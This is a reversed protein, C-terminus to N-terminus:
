KGNFDWMAEVIIFNDTSLIFSNNELTSVVEAITPRNSPDDDWCKTYLEFYKEPTGEVPKERDGAMLNATVILEPLESFPVSRSSIEWLIVGLSFIDSPKTGKYGEQKYYQPDIYAAIGILIFESTISSEEKSLGFDAILM